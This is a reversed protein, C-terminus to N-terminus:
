FQAYFIWISSCLTLVFQCHLSLVLFSASYRRFKKQVICLSKPWFFWAVSTAGMYPDSWIDSSAIKIPINLSWLSDSVSNRMEFSSNSIISEYGIERSLSFFLWMSLPFVMKLFVVYIVLFGNKFLFVVYIVPFGNKLGLLFVCLGVYSFCLSQNWLFVFDHFSLKGSYM